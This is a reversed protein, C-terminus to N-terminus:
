RKTIEVYSAMKAPGKLMGVYPCEPDYTKGECWAIWHVWTKHGPPPMVYAKILALEPLWVNARYSILESTAYGLKWLADCLDAASAAREHGVAAIAEDLSVQAIIAICTQGCLVSCPPQMVHQRDMDTM